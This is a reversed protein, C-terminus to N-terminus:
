CPLHNCKKIFMIEDETVENIGKNIKKSLDKLKLILDKSTTSEAEM